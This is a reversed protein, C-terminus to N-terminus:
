RNTLRERERLIGARTRSTLYRVDGIDLSAGSWNSAGLARLMPQARQSASRVGFQAMLDKVQVEYAALGPLASNNVLTIWAVAAAATEIKGRRRFISQDEVAIDHLIRRAATRMEIDLLAACASDILRDAESIREVLDDPIGELSLSEDPLPSLDLHEIADPGGVKADLLQLNQATLRSEMQRWGSDPDDVLAEFDIKDWDVDDVDDVGLLELLAAGTGLSGSETRRGDLLDIFDPTFEVLAHLADETVGSAVKRVQHAYSIFARMLDPLKILTARNSMIKHPAYSCLFLEVAKGSWLLPDNHGQHYGILISTLWGTDPDDRFSDAWSSQLFDEVVAEEQDRTLEVRTFDEGGAPLMRLVWEILARSQPWSESEYPPLTHDNISIGAEIRTRADALGIPDQSADAGLQRWVAAYEQTSVDLVFADTMASGLDFDIFCVATLDHGSPLGVGVAVNCGAGAPDMAQLAQTPQAQSFQQLWGPLRASDAGLQRDVRARMLDDGRLRSLVYGLAQASPEGSDIFMAVMEPLKPLDPRATTPDVQRADATPGPRLADMMPDRQPDMAEALSSALALFALPHDEALAADLDATLEPAAEDGPGGPRDTPGNGRRNGRRGSSPPKNAAM